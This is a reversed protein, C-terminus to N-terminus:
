FVVAVFKCFDVMEEPIGDPLESKKVANLSVRHVPAKNKDDQQERYSKLFKIAQQLDQRSVVSYDDGQNSKLEFSTILQNVDKM